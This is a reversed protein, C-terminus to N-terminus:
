PPERITPTTTPEGSSDVQAPEFGFPTSVLGIGWGTTDAILCPSCTWSFLHRPTPPGAHVYKRIKPLDPSGPLDAQRGAIHQYRLINRGSTYEGCCAHLGCRRAPRGAGGRHQARDQNCNGKAFVAGTTTHIVAAIGSNRGAPIQDIGTVPRSQRLKVSRRRARRACSGPGGACRM